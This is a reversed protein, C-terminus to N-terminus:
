IVPNSTPVANNDSARVPVIVCDNIMYHKPKNSIRYIIRWYITTFMFLIRFLRTFIIYKKIKIPTRM